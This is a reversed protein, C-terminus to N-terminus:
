GEIQSFYTTKHDFMIKSDTYTPGSRNKALILKAKGSLARKESEGEVCEEPRHVFIVADADEELSGTQKLDSLIPTRAGSKEVERNLQALLFIPIKLEKKLRAIRNCNTSYRNTEDGSKIHKNGIQSLQDIIIIKAGAKKMKRCKREVDTIDLNGTEDIMLRSEYLVAAADQLEQYDNGQLANYRGFKVSDVQSEISLWRDMIEDEPMEISLFGVKVHQKDLNRAITVALSTKGMRPRGAIIILKSGYLKLCNDIRPFGLRYGREEKKTNAKEIRDLHKGVIDRVNVIQDQNSRSQIKMINSQAQELLQEGSLQSDQIQMCVQNIQRTLACAKIISVYEKTSMIPMTDVLNAIYTVDIEKSAAKLTIFDIKKDKHYLAQIKTFIKQHDSNYFDDPLLDSCQEVAENNVLITAILSQEAEINQDPLKNLAM